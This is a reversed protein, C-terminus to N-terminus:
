IKYKLKRKRTSYRMDKTKIVGSVRESFSDIVALNKLIEEECVDVQRLEEIIEGNKVCIQIEPFYYLRSNVESMKKDEHIFIAKIMDYEKGYKMKKFMINLVAGDVMAGDQIDLKRKREKCEELVMDFIMKHDSNLFSFIREEEVNLKASIIAHSQLLNETKDRCRIWRLAYLFDCYFYIGDGLWHRDGRSERMYNDRVISEANEKTTGHYVM